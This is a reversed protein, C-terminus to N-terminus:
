VVEQKTASANAKIKLIFKYKIQPDQLFRSIYRVHLAITGSM